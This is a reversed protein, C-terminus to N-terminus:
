FILQHLENYTPTIEGRKLIPISTTTNKDFVSFDLHEHSISIVENNSYSNMYINFINYNNNKFDNLKLYKDINKSSYGKPRVAFFSAILHSIHSEMSSGFDLALTRKIATYNKSLYNLKKTLNEQRTLNDLIINNIRDVFAKKTDKQVLQILSKREDKDTTLHHIAQKFHFEYLYFNVDNAPNLRLEKTGERIWPAGDGLLYINKIKSFDYKKAIFDMFPAWASPTNCSFVSRNLLNRRHKSVQEIGEFTVFSKIM